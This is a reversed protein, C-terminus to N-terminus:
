TGTRGIFIETPTSMDLTSTTDELEDLDLDKAASEHSDRFSDWPCESNLTAKVKGTELELLLLSTEKKGVFVRGDDASFSFPALDVLQSMSLSLRQLPSKSSSMVYIDGSQPEVIYLEQNPSDDDTIEPDNEVHSTRVLPGLMSPVLDPAASSSMSWLTQGSTRNVAHFRGDVSALLVVNLLELEDKNETGVSTAKPPLFRYGFASKSRKALGGTRDQQLAKLSIIESLCTTFLGFAFILAPLYLIPAM